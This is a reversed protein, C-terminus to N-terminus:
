AACAAALAAPVSLDQGGAAAFCEKKRDFRRVDMRVNWGDPTSSIRYIHYAAPKMGHRPRASASPVGIVPAEGLPTKVEGQDFRHNHGHLVLEAGADAIVERFGQGDRLQKRVRASGEIPPHHVMVTRFFGEEGLEQLMKRLRELQTEGILGAASFWRTPIASSVGVVAVRGIKRVFPFSSVDTKLEQENQTMYAALRGFSQDWPIELYADHNGPIVSVHEPKGLEALWTIARDFEAPLALNTLDGTVVTHDPEAAKLDATLATLVRPDHVSKRHRRWSVYGTMRKNMLDRWDVQAPLPLHPDSLHALKLM